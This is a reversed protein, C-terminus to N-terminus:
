DSCAVSKPQSGGCLISETRGQTITACANDHATNIAEDRTPGKATRCASRGQFDICVECSARRLGFSSLVVYVVFGLVAAAILLNIKKSV